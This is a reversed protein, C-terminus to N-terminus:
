HKVYNQGDLGVFPTGPPLKSAEQPSLRQGTQGSSQPIGSGSFDPTPMQDAGGNEENYTREIGKKEAEINEWIGQLTAKYAQQDKAMSLKDLAMSVFMNHLQGSPNMARAWLESVQQNAVAFRSVAPDSKAEKYALIAKNVPVWETRPIADSAEIAKPIATQAVNAALSLRHGYTGVSRAGSVTGAYAAGQQALRQAAPVYDANERQRENARDIIRLKELNMQTGWGLQPLKGTIRYVDANTDLDKQSEMPDGSGAAAPMPTVKGTSPNVFGYTPNGNKDVGIRSFKPTGQPALLPQGTSPSYLGDNAGMKIPSNSAAIRDRWDKLAAVQGKAMPNASLRAMERDLALIAQEPDKYGQPLPVQPVVPKSGAGPAAGDFRAMWKSTFQSAPANPDGGNARIAAPSVLRGAPVDPNGLLRAAGSAGQQHALYLEAESPPHGLAKTLAAQNDTTLKATAAASAVPDFPSGHGYEAWTKPMMQDPGKAGAPSVANPNGGSEIQRERDIYGRMGTSLLGDGPLRAGGGGGTRETYSNLLKQAYALQDTTLPANPKVKLAKALNTAVVQRQANAQPIASSVLQDVSDSGSSATSVGLAPPLDPPATQPRAVPPAAFATPSQGQPPQPMPQQPMGATPQGAGAGALLPSMQSAQMAQQQQVAPGALASIANLDGMQALKKMIAGYDPAGTQPNTPLGGQFARSLDYQQKQQAGQYFNQPLDGIWSFDVPKGGWGGSPPPIISAM